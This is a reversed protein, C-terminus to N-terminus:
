KMEENFHFYRQWLQELKWERVKFMDPKANRVGIQQRYFLMVLSELSIYSSSHYFFQLSDLRIRILLSVDTMASCDEEYGENICDRANSAYLCTMCVPRQGPCRPAPAAFTCVICYFCWCAGSLIEFSLLNLLIQLSYWVYENFEVHLTIYHVALLLSLM